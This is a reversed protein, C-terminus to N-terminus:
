NQLKQGYERFCERVLCPPSTRPIPAPQSDDADEDTPGAEPLRSHPHVPLHGPHAPLPVSPLSDTGQTLVGGGGTGRSPQRRRSSALSWGRGGHPSQASRQGRASGVALTNGIPTRSPAECTTGLTGRAGDRLITMCSPQDELITVKLYFRIPLSVAPSRSAQPHVGPPSLPTPPSSRRGALVAPLSRALM